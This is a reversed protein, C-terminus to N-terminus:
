KDGPGPETRPRQLREVFGQHEPTALGRALVELVTKSDLRLLAAPDLWLGPFVESRYLGGEGPALEEFRGSRNVFWRVQPELVLVVVYERVGAREYEELKPHLDYSASSSAVEVVLEPAGVIYDDEIQIQGGCEPRIFLCADPQPESDESLMVTTNDAASLGATATQYADLWAVVKVQPEGHRLKAPSPMYVVGRILEAKIHSPMAEYRAHFTAQDLHDGMELPLLAGEPAPTTDPQELVIAM